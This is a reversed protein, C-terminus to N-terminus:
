TRPRLTMSALVLLELDIVEKATAYGQVLSNVERSKLKRMQSSTVTM